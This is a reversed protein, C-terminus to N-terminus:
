TAARRPRGAHRPPSVLARDMDERELRTARVWRDLALGSPMRARELGLEIDLWPPPEVLGAYAAHSTWDSDSPHSVVGARVPNQHIYGILTAVGDPHVALSRPGRVFVAGVRTQANIREAFEAHAERLLSALSAAGALVGLHVHNSMIAYSFCRWDSVRLAAGLLQLYWGRELKSRIFWESAVFRAILHYVTGPIIVRPKRPM